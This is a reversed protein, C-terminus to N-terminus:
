QRCDLQVACQQQRVRAARLPRRCVPGRVCLGALARWGRKWCSGYGKRPHRLHCACCHSCLDPTCVAETVITNRLHRQTTSTTTTTAATSHSLSRHPGVPAQGSHVSLGVRVGSDTSSSVGSEVGGGVVAVEEGQGAEEKAPHQRDASADELPSYYSASVTLAARAAPSPADFSGASSAARRRLPYSRGSSQVPM